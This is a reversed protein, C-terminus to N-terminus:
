KWDTSVFKDITVLVCERAKCLVDYNLYNDINETGEFKKMALELARATATLNEYEKNLEKLTM